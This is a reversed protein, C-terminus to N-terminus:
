VTKQELALGSPTPGGVTPARGRSERMLLTAIISVVIWACMYLSVATGSGYRAYLWTAVFPATSSGLITGMTYSLSLGSYRVRSQFAESFFTALVGWSMSFGVTPVVFAATASLLEGTELLAFLPISGLGMLVLGVLYVPKRGVRDSMAAGLPVFILMVAASLVTIGLMASDTLGADVGYKVCFASLIYFTMGTAPYAFMVLLFEKWHYRFTDVLPMRPIRRQSKVAEYEPSESLSFRIYLGLVVLLGSLLFPVRWGWSLFQVETLVGTLLLFGTSSLVLAIPVSVQPFSGYLGKRHAPAHEVAMLVAGGFEGSVALGQLLRLGVLAVAAWVGWTTYTPLMGIAMTALGMILLTLILTKKRGIKDGYHGFIAAGIPRAAFGGAFTAFAVLTGTLPDFSPFFLQPFVLAAATGFIFFDYWEILTGFGTAFAIKPPSTQHQVPVAMRYEQEVNVNPLSGAAVQV